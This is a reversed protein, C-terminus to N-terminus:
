TLTSSGTLLAHTAHDVLRMYPLETTGQLLGELPLTEDDQATDDSIARSLLNLTLSRVKSASCPRMAKGSMGNSGPKAANAVTPFASRSSM